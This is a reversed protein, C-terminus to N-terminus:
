EEIDFKSLKPKHNKDVFNICKKPFGGLMNHPPTMSGYENDLKYNPRDCQSKLPCGRGSCHTTQKKTFINVSM